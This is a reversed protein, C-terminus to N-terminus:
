EDQEASDHAASEARQTCASVTDRLLALDDNAPTDNPIVTFTLPVHTDYDPTTIDVPSVMSVHELAERYEDSNDGAGRRLLDLLVGISQQLVTSEAKMEQVADLLFPMSQAKNQENKLDHRYDSIISCLSIVGNLPDDLNFADDDITLVRDIVTQREIELAAIRERAADLEAQLEWGKYGCEPCAQGKKHLEM